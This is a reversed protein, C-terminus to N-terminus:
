FWKSIAVFTHSHWYAFSKIGTNSTGTHREGWFLITISKDLQFACCWFEPFELRMKVLINPRTTLSGFWIRSKDFYLQMNRTCLSNQQTVKGVYFRVRCIGVVFPNQLFFMVKSFLDRLMPVNFSKQESGIIILIYVSTPLCM